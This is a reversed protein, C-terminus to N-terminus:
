GGGKLLKNELIKEINDFEWYPIRLLKINNDQCYKTKINDHKQQLELHEKGGFHEIEKFHLEGDYEICMNYDPLYFDFPLPQIDRCNKFKYQPIYDVQNKELYRSVKLEGKSSKCRPCGVGMLLSSPIANWENNCKKCQCRIKNKNGNYKGLIIIDPNILAMEKTFQQNSKIRLNRTNIAKCKPCGVGKLLDHPTVSWKHQCKLCECEIKKYANIYEGIININPNINKMEDVFQQTTKHANGACCPCGKGQLLSHAVPTWEYRDILCRCKIKTNVNIYNDIIEINPHIKKVREIFEENTLKKGM